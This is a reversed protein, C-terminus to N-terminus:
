WPCECGCTNTGAGRWAVPHAVQEPRQVLRARQPGSLRVAVQHKRHPLDPRRPGRPRPLPCVPTLEARPTRLAPQRPEVRRSRRRRGPAHTPHPRPAHQRHRVEPGGASQGAYRSRRGRHRLPTHPGAGDTRATLVYVAPAGYSLTYAKLQEDLLKETPAPAHTETAPGRRLKSNPHRPDQSAAKPTPAATANSTLTYAALQAQAASEMKSLIAQREADDDWPRAFDHLAHTAPDSVAVMQHLDQEPPLGALQHLDDAAAVNAPKGRHLTPRNPDANLSPVDTVTNRDTAPRPTPSRPPPPHPPRPRRHLQRRAHPRQLNHRPPPHPPRPRRTPHQPRRNTSTSDPKASTTGSRHLTPRDPDAAPSDAAPASPVNSASGGSGPTASKSSFHPRSDDGTDIVALTKSPQLTSKRPPAPPLFKGYGFWGDDYPSTNAATTTEFHRAFSLDILGKPVGSQQVEYVNGTLLSFPVPRSLYVAADEFKNDIFLSVPILRMANPKTMDGTWEYVASPAPSTKPKTVKHTQSSLPAALALLAATAALARRTPNQHHM